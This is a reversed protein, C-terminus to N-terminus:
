GVVGAGEDFMVSLKRNLPAHLVRACSLRYKRLATPDIAAIISWQKATRVYEVCNQYSTLRTTKESKLFGDCTTSTLLDKSLIEM